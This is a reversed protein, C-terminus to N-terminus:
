CGLLSTGDDTSYVLLRNIRIYTHTHSLSLSLSLSHNGEFNQAAVYSTPKAHDVQRVRVNSDNVVSAIPVNEDKGVPVVHAVYPEDM